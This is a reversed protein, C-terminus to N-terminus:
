RYGHKPLTEIFQEGDTNLIKRLRSIQKALNSEEVFSDQWIAEMMEDKSLAKHNNEVLLLLTEFEKAPLHIPKGGYFLTKGEPDLVFKGFEYVFGKNGIKEM